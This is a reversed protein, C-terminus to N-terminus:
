SLLSYFQTSESFLQLLLVGNSILKTSDKYVLSLSFRTVPVRQGLVGVILYCNGDSLACIDQILDHGIDQQKSMLMSYSTASDVYTSFIYSSASRSSSNFFPRTAYSLSFYADAYGQLLTLSVVLDNEAALVTASADYPLRMFYYSFSNQSVSGIAEHGPTLLQLATDNLVSATISYVASSDGHVVAYYDIHGGSSCTKHCGKEAASLSEIDLISGESDLPSVSWMSAHVGPTVTLCSVYLSAHGSMLSMSFRLTYPTGSNALEKSLRVRYSNDEGSYVSGQQVRGMQLTTATTNTTLTLTYDSSLVGLVSIKVTCQLPRGDVSSVCNTRVADDKHSISIVDSSFFRNSRYDYNLITPDSGDLTM